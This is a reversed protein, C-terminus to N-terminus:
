RGKSKDMTSLTSFKCIMSDGEGGVVVVVLVRGWGLLALSTAFFFCINLPSLPLHRPSLPVGWGTLVRLFIPQCGTPIMDKVKVIEKGKSMCILAHLQSWDLSITTIPDFESMM